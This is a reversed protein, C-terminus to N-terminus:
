LSLQFTILHSRRRLACNGQLTGEWKVSPDMFIGVKIVGTAYYILLLDFLLPHWPGRPYEDQNRPIYTPPHIVISSSAPNTIPYYQHLPSLTEHNEDNRSILERRYYLFCHPMTKPSKITHKRSGELLGISVLYLIISARQTTDHSHHVIKVLNWVM